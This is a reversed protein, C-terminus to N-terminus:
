ICEQWWDALNRCLRPIISSLTASSVSLKIVSSSASEKSDEHVIWAFASVPHQLNFRLSSLSSLESTKWKNM